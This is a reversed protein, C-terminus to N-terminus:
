TVVIAIVPYTAFTQPIAAIGISATAINLPLPHNVFSLNLTPEHAIYRAM